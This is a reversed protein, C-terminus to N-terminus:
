LVMTDAYDKLIDMLLQEQKYFVDDCEEFLDDNEDDCIDERGSFAEYCRALNEKLPEPLVKLLVAVEAALDGCNATNFFYQSHGGNSVESEYTMLGAYPSEATGAVWLNWMKNWRLEEESLSRKKQFLNLISM